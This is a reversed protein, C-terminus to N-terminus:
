VNEPEKVTEADVIPTETKKIPAPKAFVMVRTDTIVNGVFTISPELRCNEETLAQNIKEICRQVQEKKEDM